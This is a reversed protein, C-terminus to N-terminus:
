NSSLKLIEDVIRGASGLDIIGACNKRLDERVGGSHVLEAIKTHDIQWHGAVFRGIPAAVGFTSLSEYYEEQNDVACGIGVAVERAIFELSTKSATTFVLHANRAYDDLESAIPVVTFRSDLNGLGRLVFSPPM